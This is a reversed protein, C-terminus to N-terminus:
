ASKRVRLLWSWASRSAQVRGIGQLDKGSSLDYSLWLPRMASASSYGVSQGAPRRNSPASQNLRV